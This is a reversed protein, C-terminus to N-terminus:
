RASGPQGICYLHRDSRLFLCNRAIAPTALMPGDLSNMAIVEPKDGIRLVTTGGDENTLYLKGDAFVPSPSFSGRVRQTWVEKGTKLNGCVVVGADKLVYVRDGAVVPTPTTAALRTSRWLEKPPGDDALKWAVMERGTAFVAGDAAVPSAVCSMAADSLDWRLKGTAPDYGTLGGMREVVLDTQSGHRALLPTTYNNELPREARWRERGTALDFGFLFSEGQNELPVIAMGEHIVPSAARGVYNAMAPHEIQLARLWQVNGAHDLCVLDGTGFLAVVHQGDAATTPAAMCTKPHCNTPGTAWFQREWLKTGTDAAFCFAHLRTDNLGSSATLFVRDGIIVPSAVGRGPLDAKWRVNETTSWREPLGSDTSVGSMHPGRFQPWNATGASATLALLGFALWIRRNM